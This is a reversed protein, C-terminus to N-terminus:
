NQSKGESEQSRFGLVQVRVGLGPPRNRGSGTRVLRRGCSTMLLRSQDKAFDRRYSFIKEPPHRITRFLTPASARWAPAGFYADMDADGRSVASPTPAIRGRGETQGDLRKGSLPYHPTAHLASLKTSSSETLLFRLGEGPISRFHGEPGEPKKADRETTSQAQRPGM